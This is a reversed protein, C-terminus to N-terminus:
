VSPPARLQRYSFLFYDRRASSNELHRVVTPTISFLSVGAHVLFPNLSDGLQYKFPAAFKSTHNASVELVARGTAPTNQILLPLFSWQVIGLVLVASLLLCCAFRGSTARDPKMLQM